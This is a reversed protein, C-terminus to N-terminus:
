SLYKTINFAAIAADSMATTLQRVKKLRVDGIAYLGDTKTQMNEDTLIYQKDRDVLDKFIETKPTQGIAIFVAKANIHLKEKTRTNTFDLGTVDHTGDIKDLNIEKYIEVNEKSEVKDILIKDAFYHDFLMCLHVKKCITSLLLVYQLATNADGIVAVEEDKYFAGDCVACYSVGKLSEEGEVHMKNHEAGTAIVVSLAEYTNYDTTITFIKDKKEIKQVEELEMEAGLSVIQDFLNMSFDVGSIEKISPYNEVKPSSAIQGGITEKELILVTKGNRLINLAATMGAAGCGIIITDYM